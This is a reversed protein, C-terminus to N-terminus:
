LVKLIGRYERKRTNYKKEAKNWISSEYKTVRKYGKPNFQNLTRGQRNLSTNVILIIM